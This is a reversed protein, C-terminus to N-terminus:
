MTEQSGMKVVAGQCGSGCGATCGFCHRGTRISRDGLRAADFDAIHQPLEPALGMNLMQNFDCDFLNGQWDVSVMARCMVGEVTAPNFVDILKQMYEDLQDNRRLDDLFRSIPLNTITHLESFVIDYRSKLEDRYTAELEHQSPPLSIGTPNYVLTLKRGSGPRGYGLQNLRKLADISRKFVGDGRQSDCNDEMYCPLSAVVEVEHEALFEPLDKFGNAMLITLNCRDIVRRGLQHAREVLWRFNPNMEPAGGTIDLTPIDNDALVDIIQEATKRSMSERRDPGADVHCHTCTQNCLKGVNIQLVEISKARLSPLDSSRLKQDFYPQRPTSEGELIERQMAANALESKQRLLSLQM